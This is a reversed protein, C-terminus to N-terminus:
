GKRFEELSAAYLFNISTTKLQYDKEINAGEDEMRKLAIHFM